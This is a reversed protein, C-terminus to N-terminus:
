GGTYLRELDVLEVDGAAAVDGRLRRDATQATCILLRAGRAGPPM